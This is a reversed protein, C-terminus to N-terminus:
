PERSSIKNKKLKPSCVPIMVELLFHIKMMLFPIMNARDCPNVFAVVDDHGTVSKAGNWTFIHFPMKYIASDM